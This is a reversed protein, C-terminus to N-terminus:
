VSLESGAAGELRGPAAAVDGAAPGDLGCGEKVDMFDGDEALPDGGALPLRERRRIQPFNRLCIKWM